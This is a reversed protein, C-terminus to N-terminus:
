RLTNGEHDCMPDGERKCVQKPEKVDVPPKTEGHGQVRAHRPAPDDAGLAKALTDLAADWADLDGADKAREAKAALEGRRERAAWAALAAHREDLQGERAAKAAALELADLASAYALLDREHLNDSLARRASDAAIAEASGAVRDGVAGHRDGIAARRADLAALEAALSEQRAEQSLRLATGTRQAEAELESVRENVAYAAASGGFLVLGLVAALAHRLRQRGKDSRAALVALEHARAANDAALRAKAEAEIRAVDLAAQKRAEVLEREAARERERRERAEQEAAVRAQEAARLREQEERAARAREERARAREREEDRVRELELQALEDLSFMMSTDTSSTQKTTMM